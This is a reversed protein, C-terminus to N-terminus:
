PGSTSSRLVSPLYLLRPQQYPEGDMGGFFGGGFRYSESEAHGIPALQGITFEGSFGTSSAHGASNGFSASLLQYGTPGDAAVHSALLCYAGVVLGVTRYRM